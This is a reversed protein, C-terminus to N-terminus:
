YLLFLIEHSENDISISRVRNLVENGLLLPAKTSNSVTAEVNTATLKGGIVLKRIVIKTDEVISGDAIQSKETGLIDASTLAGKEALYRAESLSITAGSCGTDVIMDVGIADNIQVSVTKVGGEEKYPIAVVGGGGETWSSEDDYTSEDDPYDSLTDASEDYGDEFVPVKKQQNDSCATILVVSLLALLRNICRM